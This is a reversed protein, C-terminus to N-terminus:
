RDRSSDAEMHAAFGAPAQMSVIMPWLVIGRVGSAPLCLSPSRWGLGHGPLDGGGLFIFDLLGGAGIVYSVSGGNIVDPLHLLDGGILTGM